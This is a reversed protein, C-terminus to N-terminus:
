KKDLEKLGAQVNEILADSSMTAGSVADIKAEMAEKPTLGVYKKLIVVAMEFFSPTEETPLAEVATIKGDKVTIQVPTTAHHGLIEKGIETTNIVISGDKKVTKTAPTQAFSVSASLATLVLAASFIHYLSKM